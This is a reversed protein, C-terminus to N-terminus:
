KRREVKSFCQSLTSRRKVGVLTHALLHIARGPLAFPPRQVHTNEHYFIVGSEAV